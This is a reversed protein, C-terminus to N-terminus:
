QWRYFPPRCLLREEWLSLSLWRWTVAPQEPQHRLEKGSALRPLVPFRPLLSYQHGEPGTRPLALLIHMHRALETQLPLPLFAPLYGQEMRGTGPPLPSYMKRLPASLQLLSDTQRLPASLQLLSGTKRLPASLQLLPHM